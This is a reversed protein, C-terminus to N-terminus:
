ANPKNDREQEHARAKKYPFPDPFPMWAIVEGDDEFGEFYASDDNYFTTAYVIGRNTTILVEEGDKPLKCDYIYSFEEGYVEREEQTPKHYKIEIWNSM